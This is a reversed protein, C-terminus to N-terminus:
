ARICAPVICLFAVMVGMEVSMSSKAEIEVALCSLAGEKGLPSIEYKGHPM